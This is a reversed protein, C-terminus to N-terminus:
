TGPHKEVADNKLLNPFMEYACNKCYPEQTPSFSSPLETKFFFFFAHRRYIKKDCRVCTETPAQM